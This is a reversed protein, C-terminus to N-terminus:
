SSTLSVLEELSLLEGTEDALEEVLVLVKNRVAPDEIRGFNKVLETCQRTNAHGLDQLFLM